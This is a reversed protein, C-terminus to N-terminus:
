VDLCFNLLHKGAVRSPPPSHEGVGRRQDDPAVLPIPSSTARLHRLEIRKV